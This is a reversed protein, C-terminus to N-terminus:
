CSPMSLSAWELVTVCSSFCDAQKSTDCHLKVSCIQISVSSLESCAKLAFTLWLKVGPTLHSTLRPYRHEDTLHHHEGEDEFWMAYKLHVDLLKHQANHGKCMEFAHAFAGSEAAYDIAQVAAPVPRTM